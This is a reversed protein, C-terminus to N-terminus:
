YKSQQQQPNLDVQILHLSYCSDVLISLFRLSNGIITLYQWSSTDFIDFSATKPQINKLRTITSKWLFQRQNAWSFLFVSFILVFVFVFRFVFIEYADICEPYHLRRWFFTSRSYLTTSFSEQNSIAAKKGRSCLAHFFRFIWFLFTKSSGQTMRVNDKNQPMVVYNELSMNFSCM